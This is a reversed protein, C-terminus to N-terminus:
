FWDNLMVDWASASSSETTTSKDLAATPEDALIWQVAPRSVHGRELGMRLHEIATLDAGWHDNADHRPGRRNAGRELPLV